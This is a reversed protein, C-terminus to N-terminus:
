GAVQRIASEIGAYGATIAAGIIGGVLLRKGLEATGLSWMIGGAIISIGSVALGIQILMSKLSTAASVLDRAQSNLSILILLLFIMNNNINKNM